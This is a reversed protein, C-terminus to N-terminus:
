RGATLTVAPRSATAALRASREDIVAGALGARAEDLVTVMLTLAAIQDQKGTHALHAAVM